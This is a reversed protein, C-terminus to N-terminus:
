QFRELAQEARRRDYDGLQQASQRYRAILEAQAPMRDALAVLTVSRDYDSEIADVADLIARSNDTDLPAHEILAELATRRDYDSEIQAASQAYAVALESSGQLRTAASVLTERQDYDSQIQRTAAIVKAIADPTARGSDLLSQLAVRYDYGSETQGLADLWDSQAEAALTPVAAQLLERRDYDSHMKKAAAFLVRQQATGLTQRELIATLATRADYDSSFQAHALGRDIQAPTWTASKALQLLYHSRGYDGEIQEVEALVRDVGGQKLLRAVRQEVHLAGVRLVRQISEAVWARAAGNIPSEEGDVFYREGVKGDDNAFEIRRTAADGREEISLEDDLEAIGDEDANFEFDGDAEFELTGGDRKIKIETSKGFIWDSISVHVSGDGLAPPAPPQPPAPAAPPAPPAPPAVVANVAPM